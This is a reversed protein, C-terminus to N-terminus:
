IRKIIPKLKVALPTTPAQLQKRESFIASWFAARQLEKAEFTTMRELQSIELYQSGGESVPDWRIDLTPDGSSAFNVWHAAMRRSVERDRPQRLTHRAGWLRPSFLYHLEDAHCVGESFPGHLVIRGKSLSDLVLKLALAGAQLTLLDVFKWSGQYCFRYQYVPHGHAAVLQCLDLTGAKFYSDSFLELLKVAKDQKEAQSAPNVLLCDQQPTLLEYEQAIRLMIEKDEAGMDETHTHFTVMSLYKWWSPGAFLNWRAPEKLIHSLILLGEDRCTGTMLPIGQFNGSELAERPDIPLIPTDAWTDVVPKWPSPCMPAWDGAFSFKEQLKAAPLLRLKKLIEESTENGECGLSKAYSRAYLQPTKGLVQIASCNSILPGSQAVARHFLGRCLPSVYLCMLCFSGASEGFITVNNPDGGFQEMNNKVWILAARQDWLALNGPLINDEFCLFGLPGVRYNVTVVIVQKTDLLPGPLYNEETADGMVFGGGYLWFMVPLPEPFEELDRPSEPVYVNLYLCDEQGELLETVYNSQLPKPCSRGADLVGEWPPPESPPLFRREGVPPLAYPIRTYSSFHGGTVTKRRRGLLKGQQILVIPRDPDQTCQM